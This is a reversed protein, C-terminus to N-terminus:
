AGLAGVVVSGEGPQLANTSMVRSAGNIKIMLPGLPPPLDTANVAQAAKLPAAAYGDQAVRRTVPGTRRRPPRRRRQRGRRVEVKETVRTAAVSKLDSVSRESMTISSIALALGVRLAM